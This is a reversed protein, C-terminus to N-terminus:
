KIKYTWIIELSYGRDAMLYMYPFTHKSFLNESTKPDSNMVMGVCNVIMNVESSKFLNYYRIAHVNAWSTNLMTNQTDTIVGLVNDEKNLFEIKNFAQQKPNSKGDGIITALTDEPRPDQPIWGESNSISVNTPSNSDRGIVCGILKVDTGDYINRIMRNKGSDVILNEGRHEEIINGDKDRLIRDVIGIADFKEYKKKARTDM